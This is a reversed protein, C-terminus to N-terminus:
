RSRPRRIGTRVRASQRAPKRGPRAAAADAAARRELRRQRVEALQRGAQPLRQRRPRRLRRRQRDQRGDHQRRARTAASPRRRGREDQTVRTTKGTVNNTYRSTTAWDDGRAVGTTGWSGYVNSGQRTAGYAGTRPNYAPAAGRAGYPGYAVAGRSYTGTRPNYRQASAPAATRVTPWRAARTRAPGRTTPPASGTARITRTTSRSLRRRVVRVAPLLLRQGVRRLGVGGDHRHLGGGDRLGGRRQEVGAGHRLHRRPSPSSVPIEYIAKPVDGTVQWPGTPTARCSGCARSACTTSTASRSSTRTPTSRASCPRRRSRSSSAAQRGSVRGRAGAATKSVRATQPIQALLIAEAAQTTGPVSALVRSRQRARASDAQLGGAADADRVDM